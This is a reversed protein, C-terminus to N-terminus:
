ERWVTEAWHQGQIKELIEQSSAVRVGNPAKIKLERQGDSLHLVLPSTGQHDLFYHLVKEVDAETWAKQKVKVHVTLARVQALGQPQVVENVIFKAKEDGIEVKGRFGLIAEEVLVPQGEANLVLEVQKLTRPFFVLEITGQFDELTAWAMKDGKKTIINKIGTVLGMIQDLKDEGESKKPKSLDVTVTQKWQERIPDLPHGSVFTGLNAKEADLLKKQDWEEFSVIELPAVADDTGEFLGGQGSAKEDKQKQAWEISKDLNHFLTARNHGLNDFVGVQIGTEFVRKNVTRLDVRELFDLFSTFPGGSKRARLIEEVAGEGINKVGQLGYVIKGDVVTFLRESTNVHPPLITLGMSRAEAMYEGMKEQSDMENTLNAAMYEAPYNAKLWATQYALVSYAAAHSKNFGYGAFPVLYDFIRKAEDKSYGKKQAGELFLIEQKDMEEKKKKGMVRRLIDAGGLSYGGVIQAVEMVQEQYVIVGYTEKLTDKLSEHLWQISRPNQKGKIFNPIEEMPGPRYLANLAILDEICTPKAQKLIKQMGTSEFQFVSASKGESLLKFTKEDDEPIDEEKLIIGRKAILELTNRIVTLTALGLFDMKVLGCEELQDMTFQTTVQGTKPDKYLPVYDTLQTKGIVVGAAHTSSHRSLGELRVATDFLNQYVAGNQAYAMLKDHNEQWGKEVYEPDLPAKLLKKLSVKLDDPVLSTLTNSETFGIDLVRAVDKLVAKPKLTGFTIIQGVKDTGYRSTVYEVVELRRDMCFDIDFDPMSVREPNLFREFLLKYKLPEIDTIRQAYAVISGAGSGRGPGVPIDHDKAWNIFDGVILFYGVFDMTIIIQLEYDIRDLIEQTMQPYRKRLGENALWIFYLTVPEHLRVWAATQKEDFRAELRKLDLGVLADAREMFDSPVDFEPLLPGPLKMEMTCLDAIKLTNALAEPAPSGPGSPFLEEMEESSKVYFEGAGFTMRKVDNKKKGTGICILTDQADADDRDVYHSDNTAVLPVGSEKALQILLPNVVTQEELGHNQLELYYNDTGFLDRFEAVRQRALELKGNLLLQPIEGGLCASLCILGEHHKQLLEWDVRPKYYFGETYGLSSLVRLNRYGENTRALLVLHHNTKEDDVRTKDFRSGPAVYLECGIIPKIGKKTCEKWFKLAGFLNGHDTIALAPLGLTKAKAVLKEVSAAGDLLSFDTHCHLPVYPMSAPYGRLAHFVLRIGTNEKALPVISLAHVGTTVGNVKSMDKEMARVGNGDLGNKEVACPLGLVELEVSDIRSELRKKTQRTSLELAHSGLREQGRKGPGAKLTEFRNGGATLRNRKLIGQVTFGAPKLHGSVAMLWAPNRGDKDVDSLSAQLAILGSFFGGFQAGEEFDAIGDNHHIFDSRPGNKHSVPESLREIAPFQVFQSRFAPLIDIDKGSQFHLLLHVPGFLLQPVMEVEAVPQSATLDTINLDVGFQAFPLMFFGDESQDVIHGFDGREPLPQILRLLKRGDALRGGVDVVFHPVKQRSKLSLEFHHLNLKRFPGDTLLVGVADVLLKQPGVAQNFADLSEGLGFSHHDLFVRHAVDQFINQLQLM